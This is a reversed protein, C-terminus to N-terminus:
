SGEECTMYKKMLGLLICFRQPYFMKVAFKFFFIYKKTTFNGMFIFRYDVSVLLINEFVPFELCCKLVLKPGSIKLFLLLYHM